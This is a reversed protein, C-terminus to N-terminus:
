PPVTNQPAAGRPLPSRQNSRGRPESSDSASDNIQRLPDVPENRNRSISPVPDLPTPTNRPTVRSVPPGQSRTRIPTRQM